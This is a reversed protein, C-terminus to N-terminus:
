SNIDEQNFSMKVNHTGRIKFDVKDSTLSTVTVKKLM